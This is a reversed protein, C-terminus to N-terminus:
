PQGKVSAPQCVPEMICSGVYLTLLKANFIMSWNSYCSMANCFLHWGLIAYERPFPSFSSLTHNMTPLIIMLYQTTVM